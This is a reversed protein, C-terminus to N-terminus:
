PLTPLTHISSATFAFQDDFCGFDVVGAATSPSATSRQLLLSFAVTTLGLTTGTQVFAFTRLTRLDKPCSGTM